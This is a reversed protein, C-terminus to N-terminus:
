ARGETVLKRNEEPTLHTKWKLANVRRILERASIKKRAAPVLRVLVYKGETLAVDFREGPKAHPLPVRRKDDATVIM